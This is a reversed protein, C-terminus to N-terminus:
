QRKDNTLALDFVLETKASNPKFYCIHHQTIPEGRYSTTPQKSCTNIPTNALYSPATHPLPSCYKVATEQVCVYVCM